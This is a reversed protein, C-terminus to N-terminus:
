VRLFVVGRVHNDDCLAPLYAIFRKQEGGLQARLIRVSPLAVLDGHVVAFPFEHFLGVLAFGAEDHIGIIFGYQYFGVRM